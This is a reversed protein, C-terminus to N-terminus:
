RSGGAHVASLRRVTALRARNAAREREQVGVVPKLGRDAAAM